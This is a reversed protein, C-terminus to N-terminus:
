FNLRVRDAEIAFGLVRKFCFNTYFNNKLKELADHFYFVVCVVYTLCTLKIKGAKISYIVFLSCLFHSYRYKHLPPDLPPARPGSGRRIGGIILGFQPGFPWFFNKQLGGGEGGSIVPDPHCPGGNNSPRSGSRNHRM